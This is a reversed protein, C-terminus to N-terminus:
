RPPPAIRCALVTDVTDPAEAPVDITLRDGAQRFTLKQGGALLRVEAVRDHLGEVILKGAAPWRLVHLFLTTENATAWGFPLKGLRTRHTGYISEGNARLWKGIELIRRRVPPRM